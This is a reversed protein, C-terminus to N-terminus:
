WGSPVYSNGTESGTGSVPLDGSGLISQSNITKINTGSILTAQVGSLVSYDIIGDEDPDYVSMPMIDDSIKNRPYDPSPQRGEIPREGAM